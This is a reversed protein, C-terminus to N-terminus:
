RKKQVNGTQQKKCGAIVLLPQLRKVVDDSGVVAQVYFQGLRLQKCVV